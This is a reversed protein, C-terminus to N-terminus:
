QEIQTPEGADGPDGDARDSAEPSEFNERMLKDAADSSYQTGSGNLLSKNISSSISISAPLILTKRNHYPRMRSQRIGLPRDFRSLLHV